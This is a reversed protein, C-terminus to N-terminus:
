RDAENVEDDDNGYKPAEDCMKKVDEYGVFNADLADLLRQM